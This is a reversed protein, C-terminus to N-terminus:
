GDWTGMLPFTEDTRHRTKLSGARNDLMPQDQQYLRLASTFGHGFQIALVPVGLRVVTRDRHAIGGGPVRGDLLQHGLLSGPRDVVYGHQVAIEPGLLFGDFFEQFGEV